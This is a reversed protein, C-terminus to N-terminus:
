ADCRKLTNKINATVIVYSKFDIFLLMLQLFRSTPQYQTFSSQSSHSFHNSLFSFSYCLMLIHRLVLFITKNSLIPNM